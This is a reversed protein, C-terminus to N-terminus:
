TPLARNRHIFWLLIAVGTLILEAVTVGFWRGHQWLWGALTSGIGGGVFNCTVFATNFRSGADPAISLVRTQNLVNVLQIAINFLVIVGLLVAISTSDLLGLALIAFAAILAAGTAPVAWGRDHLRGARQAALAGALGFLSVLGIRAVSYDFPPASLLFTLATWFLTFVCFVLASIMLTVRVSPHKRVVDFVSALLRGYRMVGRSPVVPIERWLVVALVLM